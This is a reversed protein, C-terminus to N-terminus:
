LLRETPTDVYQSVRALQSVLRLMLLLSKPLKVYRQQKLLQCTVNLMGRVLGRQMNGVDVEDWKLESERIFVEVMENLEIWDGERNVNSEDM